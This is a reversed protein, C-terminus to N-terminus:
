ATPGPVVTAPEGGSRASAYLAEIVALNSAAELATYRLPTENLICDGFHEVMTRYQDVGAVSIDERHGRGRYLEIDVPETGPLFSSPLRVWADTGAVEVTERREQALSCSIQAVLGDEFFLTGNLEDDVGRDTWRARAQVEVPEAGALTRSVNVCYCGVDLLAGGGLEPDLRINDPQTLRFTFAAQISRLEGLEGTAILELLRDIRPHFRYMFAEMLLVGNDDACAQMDRCETATLGLPKECLVHKGAELARLTWELHMSNPLPIYLADVREDDILAEYNGHATPIGHTKAFEAASAADRSAVAVLEGNTSAQIASNMAARGINATSLVGWRVVSPTM